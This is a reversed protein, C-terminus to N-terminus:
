GDDEKKVESIKDISKLLDAVFHLMETGSVLQKISLHANAIVRHLNQLAVDVNQQVAGLSDSQGARLMDNETKFSELEVQLLSVEQKLM